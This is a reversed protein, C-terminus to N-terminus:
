RCSGSRCSQGMPCRDGCRACNADTGLTVECGDGVTGNCNAFGANCSAIQCARSPCAGTANPPACARGCAGCHTV